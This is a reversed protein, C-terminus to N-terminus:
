FSHHARPMNKPPAFFSIPLASQFKGFSPGHITHIIIPVGARKAALRGLIGAKGSHTHVIDPKQERFIKELKKLALMDKLPHIPRVLEPVILMLNEAEPKWRAKRAPTPGSILHVEVGPIQRLGLVTALTNEQAGGVILRTIVHTVRMYLSMSAAPNHWVARGRDSLRSRSNWNGCGNTVTKAEATNTPANPLYIKFNRIAENTDHQQWAIDGLLFAIQFSNTDYQQLRKMIPGAPKWIATAWTLMAASSFRRTNDKQIALVRNLPKIAEDYKKQLIYISGKTYLWRPDDPATDLRRNVVALANSYMGRSVYVEEITVFLTDNTPNRSIATELLQAGVTLDNKQFYAASALMNLDTLDAPSLSFDEPRKLPVRLVDLVRDPLRNVAYIRALWTVAPWFDPVLQHVRAFAAVAEHYSGSQALM